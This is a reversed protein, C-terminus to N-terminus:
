KGARSGGLSAVGLMDASTEKRVEAERFREGVTYRPSHIHLDRIAIEGHARQWATNNM